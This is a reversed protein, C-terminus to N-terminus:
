EEEHEFQVNEEWETTMAIGSPDFDHYSHNIGDLEIVGVGEVDRTGRLGVNFVCHEIMSKEDGGKEIVTSYEELARIFEPSENDYEVYLKWSVIMEVSFTKHAM